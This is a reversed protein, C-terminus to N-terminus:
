SKDLGLERYVIRQRDWTEETLFVGGKDHSTRVGTHVAATGDVAAVRIFFSFDEGFPETRKPHQIPDFWRPGYEDRIKELITRRILIFAAGTGAVPVVTDREYDVLVRFGATDDTEVWEYLTPIQEYREAQSDMDIPGARRHAFCLGGVVDYGGSTATDLLRRLADAPYGMDSDVFLLWDGDRKLFEVTVDNRGRVIQGAAVREVILGPCQGTTGIEYVLTRMTSFAFASSVQGPHIWAINVPHPQVPSTPDTM